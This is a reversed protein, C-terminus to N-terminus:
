LWSKFLLFFIFVLTIELIKQKIVTAENVKRSVAGAAKECGWPIGLDTPM